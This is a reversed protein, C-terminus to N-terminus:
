AFDRERAVHLILLVLVADLALILLWAVVAPAATTLVTLGCAGALPALRTGLWAAPRLGTLFAGLYVATIALWATWAPLTMSWDFPSAHTGPSAAWLAYLLVSLGALLLYISLGVALKIGYIRERSIPRHLLFLQANGTFDGVAQWFGLLIALGGAMLVLQMLFTDSLFPIEGGRAPQVLGPFPSLGMPALAVFLLGALGLAAIGATERLEKLTLASTM